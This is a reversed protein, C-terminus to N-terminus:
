HGQAHESAECYLGLTCPASLFMAVDMGTVGMVWSVCFVMYNYPWLVTISLKILHKRAFGTQLANNYVAQDDTKGKSGAMKEMWQLDMSRGLGIPYHRPSPNCVIVCNSDSDCSPMSGTETM